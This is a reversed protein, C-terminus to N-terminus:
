SASFLVLLSKHLRLVKYHGLLKERKSLLMSILSIFMPQNGKFRLNEKRNLHQWLFSRAIEKQFRETIKNLYIILDLHTQYKKM